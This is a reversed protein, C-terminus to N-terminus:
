KLSDVFEKCTAYYELLVEKKEMENILKEPNNEFTRALEAWDQIHFLFLSHFFSDDENYWPKKNRINNFVNKELESTTDYKWIGKGSVVIGILDIDIQNHIFERKLNSIDYFDQFSPPALGNQPHNHIIFLRGKLKNYIIYHILADTDYNVSTFNVDIRANYGIDVFIMEGSKSCPYAIFIEERSGEVQQFDRLGAVFPLQISTYTYDDPTFFNYSNPTNLFSTSNIGLLFFVILGTIVSNQIKVLMYITWRNM